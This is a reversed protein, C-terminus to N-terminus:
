SGFAGAEVLQKEQAGLKSIAEMVRDTVELQVSREFPDSTAFDSLDVPSGFSVRVPTTGEGGGRFNERVQDVFSNSLGSIWMPVVVAESRLAMQGVGPRAPLLHYPDPHFCREGEPHLGVVAGPRRLLPVIREVAIANLGRRPEDHFIPPYMAGGSAVLNVALGALRDYFFRSRVPFYIDGFWAPAANRLISTVVYLDFFSRHNACLLVGRRPTLGMVEELGHVELLNSTCARIAHRGFTDHFARQLRKTFPTQNIRACIAISLREVTTLQDAGEDYDTVAPVRNSSRESV